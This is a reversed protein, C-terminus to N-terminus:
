EHGWSGRRRIKWPSGDGSKSHSEDEERMGEQLVRWAKPLEQGWTRFTAQRHRELVDM